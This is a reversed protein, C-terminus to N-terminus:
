SYTTDVICGDVVAGENYGVLASTYKTSMYWIVEVWDKWTKRMALHYSKTPNLCTNRVCWVNSGFNLGTRKAAAAVEAM